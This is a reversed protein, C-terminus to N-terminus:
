AATNVARIASHMPHASSTATVTDPRYIHFKGCISDVASYVTSASVVISILETGLGCM